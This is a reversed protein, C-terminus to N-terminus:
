DTLDELNLEPIIYPTIGSHKTEGDSFDRLILLSLLEQQKTTTFNLCWSCFDKWLKTKNFLNKKFESVLLTPKSFTFIEYIGIPYRIKSTL